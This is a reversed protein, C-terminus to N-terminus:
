CATLLPTLLPTLLTTRLPPALQGVASRARLAATAATVGAGALAILAADMTSRIKKLM